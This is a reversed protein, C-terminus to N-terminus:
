LSEMSYFCYNKLKRRHLKYYKMKYKLLMMIQIVKGKVIRACHVRVLLNVFKITIKRLFNYFYLIPM